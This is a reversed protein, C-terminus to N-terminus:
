MKSIYFVGLSLAMTAINSKLNAPANSLKSNNNLTVGFLTTTPYQPSTTTSNFFITSANTSNFVTTSVNTPQAELVLSSNIDSSSQLEIIPDYKMESTSLLFRIIFIKKSEQLEYRPFGAPMDTWNGNTLVKLFLHIESYNNKYFM